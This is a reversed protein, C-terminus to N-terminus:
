TLNYTISTGGGGSQLTTTRYVKYDGVTTVTFQGLVEFGSTTISTLNSLSSNYVIYQYKDGSWTITVADGSPNTNGKAITGITGGLTTDWDSLVELEAQTFSSNASAGYRVSRIKSYTTTSNRVSFIQPSNEGSPSQYNSTSGIVISSSGTASGTVFIPSTTRNLILIAILM